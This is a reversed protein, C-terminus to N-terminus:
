DQVAAVAAPHFSRCCPYQLQEEWDTGRGDRTMDLMNWLPELTGVHRMEQGPDMPAYLLETGWFHKIEAGDREFVNLMPQQGGTESEGLYDRNFSNTASSLLRLNRWRRERGFALLRDAGTKAVVAFAMRQEVHPAAGDLQDLLSTCSPCPGEALPLTATTGSAPGPREDSRSRPFMMNYVALSRHPGFLDSLRVEGISGDPLAGRFVYDEPVAGGAPLLRRKVAVSEMARRLEIEAALLGDRAARYEATENPFPRSM